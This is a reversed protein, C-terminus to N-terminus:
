DGFIPLPYSNYEELLESNKNAYEYQIEFDLPLYILKNVCINTEKLITGNSDIFYIYKSSNDNGYIIYSTSEIDSQKELLEKFSIDTTDIKYISDLGSRLRAKLNIDLKPLKKELIM